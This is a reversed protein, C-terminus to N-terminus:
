KLAFFPTLALIPQSKVYKRTLTLTEESEIPLFIVMTMMSSVCISHLLTMGLGYVDSKEVIPKDMNEPSLYVPTGGIKNVLGFDAIYLHPFNRNPIKERRLLSRKIKSTASLRSISTLLLNEPKVTV